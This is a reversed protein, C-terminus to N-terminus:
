ERSLIKVADELEITEKEVALALHQLRDSAEEFKEVYNWCIKNLIEKQEEEEIEKSIAILRQAFAKGAATDQTGYYFEIYYDYNKDNLIEEIAEDEAERFDKLRESVALDEETLIAVGFCSKDGREDRSHYLADTLGYSLGETVQFYTEGDLEFFQVHVGNWMEDGVELYDAGTLEVVYLIEDEKIEKNEIAKKVAKKIEEVEEKFEFDKLIEEANKLFEKATIKGM